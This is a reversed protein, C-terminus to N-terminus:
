SGPHQHCWCVVWTNYWGEKKHGQNVKVKLTVALL